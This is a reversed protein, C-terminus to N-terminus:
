RAWLRRAEAADVARYGEHVPLAFAAAPPESVLDPDEVKVSLKGGDELVADIRRPVQAGWAARYEKLSRVSSGLLVDMVEPPALAIGVLERLDDARAGGRFCAREAPFVAVLEAGNAVALFRAGTPGPIEIRLLDPRACAVLARTRARLEPGDLRVELVASYTRARAASAVIDPPPMKPASACGTSVWVVLLFSLRASRM